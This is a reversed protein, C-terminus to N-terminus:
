YVETSGRHLPNGAEPILPYLSGELPSPILNNEVVDAKANGGNLIAAPLSTLPLTNGLNALEVTTGGESGYQVGCNESGDGLKDGSADYLKAQHSDTSSGAVQFAGNLIDCIEVIAVM